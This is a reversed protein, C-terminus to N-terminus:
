QQQNDNDITDKDQKLELLRGLTIWTGHDERYQVIARESDTLWLDKWSLQSQGLQYETSKCFEPDWQTHIKSTLMPARFFAPCVALQVSAPYDYRDLLLRPLIKDAPKVKYYRMRKGKWFLAGVDTQLRTLLAQYGERSIWYAYSGWVPTGGPRTHARATKTAVEEDNEKVSTKTMEDNHSNRSDNIKGNNIHGNPRPQEQEKEMEGLDALIDQTKPFPMVTYGCKTPREFAQKQRHRQSIWELNPISGLWGIFRLHCKKDLGNGDNPQSQQQQQQEWEQSAEMAQWIREACEKGSWPARVNDELIVHFEEDHFRRLAILHALVCGLVARGRNITKAKRWFEVSYHLKVDEANGRRGPQAPISKLSDFFRHSHIEIEPDQDVAQQLANWEIDPILGAQHATRLCEMRNGLRRSSVAPTFQPPEFYEEMEPTAFMAQISAQRDSDPSTIVLVKLKRRGNMGNRAGHSNTSDGMESM